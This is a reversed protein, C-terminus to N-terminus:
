GRQGSDNVARLARDARPIVGIERAKARFAAGHDVDLGREAQWQHIMEHLVTHEVEKWRDLNLHRRSIAIEVVHHTQADFTLEGIRTRMRDSIRFRVSSLAGGFHLTNLRDHASKLAALVKGDGPRQRARRSRLQRPPVYEDVPFSIVEQEARRRVPRRTSPEVFRIVAQLTRDSAYAFGRHIRVVGRKTLSLLVTRNEHVAVPLKIGLLELRGRLLAEDAARAEEKAWNLRSRRKMWEATVRLGM